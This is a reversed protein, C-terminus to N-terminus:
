SKQKTQRVHFVSYPFFNKREKKLAPKKGRFWTAWKWVGMAREAEVCVGGRERERERKRNRESLWIGETYCIRTM